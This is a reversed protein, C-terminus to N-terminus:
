PGFYWVLLYVAATTHSCYPILRPERVKVLNDELLSPSAAIMSVNMNVNVASCRQSLIMNIQNYYQSMLDTYQPLCSQSVAGNARYTM